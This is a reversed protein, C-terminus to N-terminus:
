SLHALINIITGGPDEVFFRRVGWPEDRIPYVVRLGRELAAAHATDVAVSDGLDIGFSPEPNEMGAPPIIVQATPNAPSTLGLVPERMAVELGLVETYFEMSAPQNTGKAYAVIRTVPVTVVEEPQAASPQHHEAATNSQHETALSLQVGDEVDIAVDLFGAHRHLAALDEDAHVRMAPAWVDDPPEPGPVAAIALRGGPVLVRHFEALVGLPADFFFANGCV